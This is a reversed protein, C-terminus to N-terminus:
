LGDVRRARRARALGILGVALLSLTAPEPVPASSATYAFNPGFRGKSNASLIEPYDFSHAHLVAGDFTINSPTTVSSAAFRYPDSWTFVDGHFQDPLTLSYEPYGIVEAGIRYTGSALTLPSVTVWRFDGELNGSGVVTDTLLLKQASDWIGVRHGFVLGDGNTDYYGLRTISISDSLTFQWGVTDPPDLTEFVTDYVPKTAMEGGSFTLAITDAHVSTALIALTMAVLFQHGFLDKKMQRMGTSKQKPTFRRM